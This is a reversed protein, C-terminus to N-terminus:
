GHENELVGRQKLKLAAQARALAAGIEFSEKADLSDGRIRLQAGAKIHERVVRHAGEQGLEELLHAPSTPRVM